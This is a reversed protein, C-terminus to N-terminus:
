EQYDRKVSSRLFSDQDPPHDSDSGVGERSEACGISEDQSSKLGLSRLHKTLKVRSAAKTFIDAVMEETSKYEIKITSDSVQDRVFHFKTNIHKTRSHQSPNSALLITSKNDQYVLTPESAHGQDRTDVQQLLRRIWIIEQTVAFLAMYEAETSSMAVTPQRQSKWSVSAGNIPVVYGTVSRGSDPDSAWSADAYAVMPQASTGEYKLSLSKTTKLYKLIKLAANWHDQNNDELFKSVEGVANSIDPRTCVMVYM